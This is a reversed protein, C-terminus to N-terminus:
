NRSAAEELKLSLEDAEERLASIHAEKQASEKATVSTHRKSDSRMTRKVRREEALEAQLREVEAKLSSVIPKELVAQLLEEARLAAFQQTIPSRLLTELLDDQLLLPDFSAPLM